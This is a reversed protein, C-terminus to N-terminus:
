EYCRLSACQAAQRVQEATSNLTGLPAGPMFLLGKFGPRRGRVGEVNSRGELSEICLPSCACRMCLPACACPLAHLQPTSPDRLRRRRRAHGLVHTLHEGLHLWCPVAWTCPTCTWSAALPRAAARLRSTVWCGRWPTAPWLRRWLLMTPTSCPKCCLAINCHAYHQTAAPSAGRRAQASSCADVWVAIPLPAGPWTRVEWIRNGKPNAVVM